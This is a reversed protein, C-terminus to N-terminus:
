KQLWLSVADAIAQALKEQENPNIIWEFEDPNIMFGLELLVSPASHPRTLALNNWFVGYSPRDLNETLYNHLFVALDHAQPHYWFMGIGQTKEADGNDPLANYHISLALTPKTDRIMAVREGLARGEDKDRTLIVKAGKGQLKEAILKSVVLNVEKETYGNPGVAGSETGGHGADLLITAGQLSNSTLRPPYNLSLILQNGEYRVDYGWQQSDKFHFTYDIRTPTVQQWDLRRILPNDDLRITDTQAITNHLSLIFRDDEQKITIPVPNTLPFIMEMGRNNGRYGVSRITALPPVTTPLTQTENARIWGGYDLRLWEGEKGTVQAKTGQPLPTLRSHNTSAGTRAVGEPVSVAIVPLQSPNLTTIKGVQNQVITKGEYSMTMVPNENNTVTTCGQFKAWNQANIINPENNATLIGSNPPLTVIDRTPTLNLTKQSLEVKVTATAPASTHFCVLENPLRALDVNPYILNPSLTELEEAKPTNAIRTIIKTISQNNTRITFNNQGIQLPFSPAFFGQKSTNIEQGNILVKTGATTSGIFFLRPASTQHNDPPYVIKLSQNQAVASPAPYWFNHTIVGLIVLFLLSNIFLKKSM